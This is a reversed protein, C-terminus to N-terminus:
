ITEISVINSKIIRTAQEIDYSMFRDKDWTSYSSSYSLIIIGFYKRLLNDFLIM